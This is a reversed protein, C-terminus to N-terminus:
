QKPPNSDGAAAASLSLNVRDRTAPSSTIGLVLRGLMPLRAIVSRRKYMKELMRLQGNETPSVIVVILM